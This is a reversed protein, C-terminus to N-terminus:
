TALKLELAKLFSEMTATYGFVYKSLARFMVNYIEGRETITLRTGTPLRHRRGVINQITLKQKSRTM